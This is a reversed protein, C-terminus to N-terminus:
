HVPTGSFRCVPRRSLREESLHLSLLSEIDRCKLVFHLESIINVDKKFIILPYKKDDYMNNVRQGSQHSGM